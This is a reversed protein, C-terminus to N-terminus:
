SGTNMAGPLDFQGSVVENTRPNWGIVAKARAGGASSGIDLIEQAIDRFEGRLARRADEVLHAMDLPVATAPSRTEAVAPEFELAGMARHGVYLLRQLTTIDDARTGHRSLYESILANGFRDPLSDALLGPLGHFTDQALDPFQFAPPAQLKMQLPISGPRRERFRARVPIRLLGPKGRLPAVAGVSRGWIRAEVVNPDAMRATPRLPLRAPAPRANAYRPAKAARRAVCSAGAWGGGSGPSGPRGVSELARLLAILNRLTTAGTKEFRKLPTLGIGSRAPWNSRPCGRARRSIRWAKIAQALRAAIEANSLHHLSM